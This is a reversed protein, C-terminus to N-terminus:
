LYLKRQGYLEREYEVGEVMNRLLLKVLRDLQSRSRYDAESIFDVLQRSLLEKCTRKGDSNNKDFVAIAHGGNQKIVTMCPIDSLGDGIYLINQFPIPRDALPMHSNISEHLEEKGKNIRFIFQTKLTDNVIVKPFVAAGYEDYYYECAFIKHFHKAITTGDIIEKLGASIVYHRLEINNFEKKAFSSIRKFYNSVGPYYKIRTALESLMRSTVPFGKAKSRELMLRMYTVIGEGKTRKTERSVERWFKAGDDIGIEPLITYEQMPKPTLTGDFDYVIAIINQNLQNNDM